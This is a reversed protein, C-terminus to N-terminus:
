YINRSRRRNGGRVAERELPAAARQGARSLADPYRRRARM